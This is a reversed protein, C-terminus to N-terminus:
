CTITPKNFPDEYLKDLPTPWKFPPNTTIKTEDVKLRLPTEKKFVLSLHDRIIQVQQPTFEAEDGSLEMYGQLWYCFDKPEM